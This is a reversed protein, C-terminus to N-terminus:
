VQLLALNGEPWSTQGKVTKKKVLNSILFPLTLSIWNMNQARRLDHVIAYYDRPVSSTSVPMLLTGLLVLLVRRIFDDDATGDTEIARILDDILITNTRPNLFKSPVERSTDFKAQNFTEGRNKLGTIAEVDEGSLTIDETGIRFVKRAPDFATIMFLLLGPRMIIHKARLYSGIGWEELKRRQIPNLKSTLDYWKKPSCPIEKDGM